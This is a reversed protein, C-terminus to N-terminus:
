LKGVTLHVFVFTSRCSWRWRRLKVSFYITTLLPALTTSYTRKSLTHVRVPVAPEFGTREALNLKGTTTKKVAAKVGSM